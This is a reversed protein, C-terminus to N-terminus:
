PASQRAIASYSGTILAPRLRQRWGTPSSLAPGAAPQQDDRGSSRCGDCEALRGASCSMMWLQCLCASVSGRGIGANGSPDGSLRRCCTSRPSHHLLHTYRVPSDRRRDQGASREAATDSCTRSPGRPVQAHEQADPTRADVPIQSDVDRFDLGHVQIRPRRLLDAVQLLHSVAFGTGNVLGIQRVVEAPWLSVGCQFSEDSGLVLLFLIDCLFPSRRGSRRWSYTIGRM